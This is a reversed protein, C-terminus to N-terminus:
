GNEIEGAFPFPLKEQNNKLYKELAKGLFSQTAEKLDQVDSPWNEAQAGMEFMNQIQAPDGKTMAMVLDWWRAALKQGEPGEPDKNRRYLEMLETSLEQIQHTFETAEREDKFRNMYYDMQENSLQRLVFSYPNGMRTSVIMAFLCDMGIEKGVKIEDIVKELQDVAEKLHSIREVLAEKQQSFMQELEGASEAPLMRDRIEELSFGLSKLFLIQQLRIIDRRGYMRRGGETYESPVLLGNKDYYQLTRITVGCRRALEGVTLLKEEDKHM